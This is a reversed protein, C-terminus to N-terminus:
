RGSTPRTFGAIMRLTTTKGCGSPGLLTIFEGQRVELDLADVVVLHGFRKSVQRLTVDAMVVTEAREHGGDVRWRAIGSRTGAASISRPRISSSWTTSRRQM